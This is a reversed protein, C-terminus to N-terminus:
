KTKEELLKKIGDKHIYFFVKGIAEVVNEAVRQRAWESGLNTNQHMVLVAKALEIADQKNNTM